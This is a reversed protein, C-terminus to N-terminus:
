SSAITARTKLRFASGKETAFATFSALDLPPEPMWPNRRTGPLPGVSVLSPGLLHAFEGLSNCASFTFSMAEETSGASTTLATRIVGHSTVNTSGVLAIGINIASIVSTGSHAANRSGACRPASSSLDRKEESFRLSCMCADHAITPDTLATSSTSPHFARTRAARSNGASVLPLTSSRRSGIPQGSPPSSSLSTTNPSASIRRM